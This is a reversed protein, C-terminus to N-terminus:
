IPDLNDKADVSLVYPFTSASRPAGEVGADWNALRERLADARIGESDMAVKAPSVFHGPMSAKATAFTWEAMLIKEGPNCLVTIV